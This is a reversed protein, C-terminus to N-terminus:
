VHLGEGRMRPHLVNANPPNRVTLRVTVLISHVVFNEASFFRDVLLTMTCSSVWEGGLESASAYTGGIEVAESNVRFNGWM